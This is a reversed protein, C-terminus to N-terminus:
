HPPPAACCKRVQVLLWGFVLCMMSGNAFLAEASMSVIVAAKELNSKNYVLWAVVGLVVVLIVIAPGVAAETLLYVALATALTCQIVFPTLLVYWACDVLAKLWAVCLFLVFVILCLPAEPVNLYGAWIGSPQPRDSALM